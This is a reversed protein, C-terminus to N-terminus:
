RRAMVRQVEADFEDETIEGRELREGLATLQDSQSGGSGGPSGQGGKKAADFADAEAHRADKGPDSSHKWEHEILKAEQSKPQCLVKIEQGETPHDM